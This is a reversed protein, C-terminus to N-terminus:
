TTVFPIEEVMEYVCEITRDPPCTITPGENHITFIQTCSAQRGCDDTVTYVIEYKAGPCDDQGYVLHPGVETIVYGM